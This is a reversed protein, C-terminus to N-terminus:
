LILCKVKGGTYPDLKIAVRVAEEPSAGYLMAGMAFSSGSGVVAPAGVEVPLLSRCFVEVRLKGVVLAEFHKGLIPKDESKPSKLWKLFLPYDEINGTMGVLRNGVRWIKQTQVPTIFSGCQQTDAAITKGDTAITTM